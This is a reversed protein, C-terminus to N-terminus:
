EVNLRVIVFTITKLTKSLTKQSAHYKLKEFLVLLLKKLFLLNYLQVLCSILFTVKSKQFTLFIWLHHGFLGM